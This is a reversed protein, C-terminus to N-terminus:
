PATQGVPQRGPPVRGRGAPPEKRNRSEDAGGEADAAAGAGGSGEPAHRRRHGEDSAGRVDAHRWFVEGMKPISAPPILVIRGNRTAARAPARARIPASLRCGSTVKSISRSM